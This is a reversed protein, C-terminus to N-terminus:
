YGRYYHNLAWIPFSIFGPNSKGCPLRQFPFSAFIIKRSLEPILATLSAPAELEM